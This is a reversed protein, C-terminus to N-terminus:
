KSDAEVGHAQSRRTAERLRQLQETALTVKAEFEDLNQATQMYDALAEEHGEIGEYESRPSARYIPTDSPVGRLRNLALRKELEEFQLMNTFRKHM